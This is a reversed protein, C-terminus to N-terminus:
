DLPYCAFVIDGVIKLLDSELIINRKWLRALLVFRIVVDPSVANSSTEHILVSKITV